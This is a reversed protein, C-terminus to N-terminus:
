GSQILRDIETLAFKAGSGLGVDLNTPVSSNRPNIRVLRASYDHAILSSYGRLSSNVNDAGIEIVVPKKVRTLWTSLRAAQDAQRHELWQRDGRMLVNPRATGGCYPCRPIENLLLCQEVDVEPEFEDASWIADCCPLLCQLYHISGQREQINTQDFGLRSNRFACQSSFCEPLLSM